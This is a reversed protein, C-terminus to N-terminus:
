TKMIESLKSKFFQQDHPETLMTAAEDPTVWATENNEDNSDALPEDTKFLFLTITKLESTDPNGNNYPHRQYSGLERVFTLNTLGAEEFIERKAAALPDEDEQIRGKPLGWFNGDEKILLVKGEQNLIIGGASYTLIM